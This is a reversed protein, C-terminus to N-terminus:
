LCLLLQSKRPHCSELLLRSLSIERCIIPTYYTIEESVAIWNESHVLHLPSAAAKHSTHFVVGGTVADVLYVSIGAACPFVLIYLSSACFYVKNGNTLVVFGMAMAIVKKHSYVYNM